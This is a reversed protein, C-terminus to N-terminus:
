ASKQMSTLYLTVDSTSERLKPFHTAMAVVRLAASNPFIIKSFILNLPNGTLM